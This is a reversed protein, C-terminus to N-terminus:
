YRSVARDTLVGSVKGGVICHCFADPRLSTGPEQRPEMRALDATLVQVVILFTEQAPFSGPLTPTNGLLREPGRDNGQGKHDVWHRRSAAAKDHGERAAQVATAVAVQAPEARLLHALVVGLGLVVVPMTAVLVVVPWPARTAHAAHAPGPSCPSSCRRCQRHRRTTCSCCAACSGPVHASRGCCATTGRGAVDRIACRGDGRVALSM